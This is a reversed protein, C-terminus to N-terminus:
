LEDVMKIMDKLILCEEYLEAQEYQKITVELIDKFVTTNTYEKGMSNTIGDVMFKVTALCIIKREEESLELYDKPLM